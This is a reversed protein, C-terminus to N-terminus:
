FWLGVHWRGRWCAEIGSLVVSCTLIYTVYFAIYVTLCFIQFYTMPRQWAFLLFFFPTQQNSNIQITPVFGHGTTWWDPDLATLIWCPNGQPQLCLTQYENPGVHMKKCTFHIACHVDAPQKAFCLTPRKTKGRTKQLNFMKQRPARHEVNKVYKPSDPVLHGFSTSATSSGGFM